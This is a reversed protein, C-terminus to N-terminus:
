IEGYAPVGYDLECQNLYDCHNKERYFVEDIEECYGEVAYRLKENEEQQQWDAGDEYENM